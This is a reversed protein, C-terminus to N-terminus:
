WKIISGLCKFLLKNFIVRVKLTVFSRQYNSFHEKFNPLIRQIPDLIFEERWERNQSDLESWM